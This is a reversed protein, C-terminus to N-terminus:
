LDRWAEEDEPAGWEDLMEPLSSLYGATLTGVKYIMVCDQKVEFGLLDGRVFNVADRIEQPITVRGRTTMRAVNM